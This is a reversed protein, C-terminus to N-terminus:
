SFPDTDKSYVLSNGGKKKTIILHIKM